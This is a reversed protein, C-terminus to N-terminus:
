RGFVPLIIASAGIVGQPGSPSPSIAPEHPRAAISIIPAFVINIVLILGLSQCLILSDLLIKNRETGCMAARLARVRYRPWLELPISESVAADSRLVRDKM